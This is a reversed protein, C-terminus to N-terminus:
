AAKRFLAAAGLWLAVFVVTPMLPADGLRAVLAIVTASAQAIATVVLARAMGRPRFRAIAAGVIGVGLVGAFMLNAPNGEDGIFGVALTAWVLLFGTAVALGAAARYVTNGSLRTALEYSGCAVGLMTGFTVFDVLTWQVDDTFQMAVLPLLLLLAASGWIATRWRNDRQLNDGHTDTTM